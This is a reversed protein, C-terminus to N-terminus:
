KRLDSVRANLRVRVDNAFYASLIAWFPASLLLVAFEIVNDTVSLWIPANSSAFGELGGRLTATLEFATIPSLLLATAWVAFEIGFAFTTGRWFASRSLNCSRRWLSAWDNSETALVVSFCMYLFESFFWCFYSVATLVVVIGVLPLSLEPALFFRVPLHMKENNCWAAVGGFICVLATILQFAGTAIRAIVAKKGLRNSFALSPICSDESLLVMRQLALSRKVTHFLFYLGCLGAFAVVAATGILEQVSFTSPPELLSFPLNGVSLVLCPLWFLSMSLKFTASYSKAALKIISLISLPSVPAPPLAFNQYVM